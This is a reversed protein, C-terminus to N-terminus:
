GGRKGKGYFFGVNAYDLCVERGYNNELLALIKGLNIVLVITM